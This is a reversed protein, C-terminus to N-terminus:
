GNPCLPSGDPLTDEASQLQPRENEAELVDAVVSALMELENEELKAADRGLLEIIRTREAPDAIERNVLHLVDCRLQPEGMEAALLSLFDQQGGPDSRTSV